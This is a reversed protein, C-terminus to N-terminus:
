DIQKTRKTYRKCKMQLEQNITYPNNVSLGHIQQWSDANQIHIHCFEKNLQQKKHCLFKIENNRFLISAHTQTQTKTHKHALTPTHKRTHKNTYTPTSAHKHTPHKHTNKHSHPTHTNRHAQTHTHAYTTHM